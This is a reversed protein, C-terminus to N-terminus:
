DGSDTVEEQVEADFLDERGAIFNRAIIYIEASGKRSSHTKHTTVRFFEEKVKRYIWPFDEGQFTKMVLNGGPCLVQIAFDLAMKNLDIARAQDYSKHGSLKPSADCVVLNVVPLLDLVRAVITPKSFDGVLTIVGELPQIPNLDIGVIQGSTNEKLIQLWSGPAAGLDVVNDQPRLVANRELIEKLKFSARSRYGQKMAKQYVKDRGWQSGM